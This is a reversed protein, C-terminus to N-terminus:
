SKIIVLYKSASWFKEANTIVISKVLNKDKTDKDLIYSDAPHITIIKVGDSNVPISSIQTYDIRTFKEKDFSESLKPTRGIGLLGGAKNILNAEQLEKTKGIM